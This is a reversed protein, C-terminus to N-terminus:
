PAPAAKPPFTARSVGTAGLTYTKGNWEITLNQTQTCLLEAHGEFSVPIREGKRVAGSFLKQGDCSVTLSTIDEKASFVCHNVSAVAATQVLDPNPEPADDTSFLANTGVILAVILVIIGAIVGGIKLYQHPDVAATQAPEAAEPTEGEVAAPADDGDPTEEAPEVVPAGYGRRTRSRTDGLHLAHYDTLLKDADLKLYTAYVRM